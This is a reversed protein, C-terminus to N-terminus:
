IYVNNYKKMVFSDPKNINKHIYNYLKGYVELNLINWNEPLREDTIYFISFFGM